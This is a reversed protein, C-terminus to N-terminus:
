KYEFILFSKLSIIIEWEKRDINEKDSYRIENELREEVFRTDQRYIVEDEKDRLDIYKELAIM